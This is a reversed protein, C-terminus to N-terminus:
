HLVEEGEMFIYIYVILTTKFDRITSNNTEAKKREIDMSDVSNLYLAVLKMYM